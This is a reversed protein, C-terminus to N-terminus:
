SSQMDKFLWLKSPSICADLRIDQAQVDSICDVPEFLSIGMKLCDPRCAQLFRDYFGKGYGVRHGKKDFILMPVLVMDLLHGQVEIGDGPEPIGWTNERIKSASFQDYHALAYTGPIIKSAVQHVAPYHTSLWTMLMRTDPERFKQIPLFFHCYKIDTFSLTAFIELVQQQLRALTLADLAQRKQKYLDRLESKLAM